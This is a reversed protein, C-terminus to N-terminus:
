LAPRSRPRRDESSASPFGRLGGALRERCAPPFSEVATAARRFRGTLKVSSATASANDPPLRGSQGESVTAVKQRVHHRGPREVLHSTHSAMKRRFRETGDELIRRGAHEIRARSRVPVQDEVSFCRFKGPPIEGDVTASVASAADAPLPASSVMLSGYLNSSSRASGRHARVSCRLM